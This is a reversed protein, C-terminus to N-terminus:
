SWMNEVGYLEADAFPITATFEDMCPSECLYWESIINNSELDEYKMVHFQAANVECTQCIM